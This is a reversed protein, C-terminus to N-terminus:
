NLKLSCILCNGLSMCENFVPIQRAIERLCYCSLIIIISLSLHYNAIINASNKDIVIENYCRLIWYYSMIIFKIELIKLAYSDLRIIILLYLLKNHAGELSSYVRDFIMSDMAKLPQSTLSITNTGSVSEIYRSTSAFLIPIMFITFWTLLSIACLFQLIRCTRRTLSNNSPTCFSHPQQHGYQLHQEIYKVEQGQNNGRNLLYILRPKHELTPNIIAAM